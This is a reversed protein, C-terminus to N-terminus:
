KSGVSVVAIACDYLSLPSENREESLTVGGMCKKVGCTSIDIASLLSFKTQSGVGGFEVDPRSICGQGDDRILPPEGEEGCEASEFEFAGELECERMGANICLELCKNNSVDIVGDILKIGM